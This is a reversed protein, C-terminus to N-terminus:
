RAHVDVNACMMLGGNFSRCELGLGDLVDVIRNFKVQFWPGFRVFVSDYFM